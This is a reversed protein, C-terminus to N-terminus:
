SHVEPHLGPKSRHRFSFTGSRQEAAICSLFLREATLFLQATRPIEDARARGLPRVKSQDAMVPSRKPCRTSHTISVRALGFTMSRDFATCRGLAIVKM